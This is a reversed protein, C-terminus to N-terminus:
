KSYLEVVLKVKFVSPLDAIGPNEKLVATCKEHDINIWLPEERQKFCEIAYATRGTKQAKDVISIEDDINVQYSPIDVKKGNIKVHGHSVVQRAEARTSAFGSRFILNDLRSELLLLLNDGTSGKSRDAKKYYNRFQREMIGYYMRITQKMQLQINYDSNRGPSRGGPLSKRAKERVLSTLDLDTGCRRARKLRPKMLKAM